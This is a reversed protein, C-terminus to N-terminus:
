IWINELLQIHIVQNQEKIIHVHIKGWMLEIDEEGNVISRKLDM